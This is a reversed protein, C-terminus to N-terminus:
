FEEARTVKAASDHLKRVVGEFLEAAEPTDNITLLRRDEEPPVFSGPLWLGSMETSSSSAQSAGLTQVLLDRGDRVVDEKILTLTSMGSGYPVARIIGFSELLLYDNTIATAPGVEGNRLLANVLTVPDQIRGTSAQGFQHGFLIHAVFLKREHLADTTNRSALERELLPSFAYTQQKGTKSKVRATDILGVKRAATLMGAGVDSSPLNSLAIGPHTAAADVIGLIVDRETSPLGRLFGSIPVIGTSWVHENYVINERLEKSFQRRVLSLAAAAKTGEIADPESIGSSVIAHLHNSEVMPSHAALQGSLVLARDVDRPGFEEFVQATQNLLPAAVGVFEEVRVVKDDKLLFDVVQANKLIPLFTHRLEFPSIGLFHALQEVTDGNLADAQSRMREALSM